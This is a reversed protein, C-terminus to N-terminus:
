GLHLVSVEWQAKVMRTARLMVAKGVGVLIDWKLGM